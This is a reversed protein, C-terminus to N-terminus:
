SRLPIREIKIGAETLEVAPQGGLGEDTLILDMRNLPLVSSFGIKGYKYSDAVLVTTEARAKMAKVIEAGEVL